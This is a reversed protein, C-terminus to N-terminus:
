KAMFGYCAFVIKTIWLKGMGVPSCSQLSLVM